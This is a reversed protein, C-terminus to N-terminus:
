KKSNSDEGPDKYSYVKIQEFLQGIEDNHPYHFRNIAKTTCGTEDIMSRLKIIPRLLQFGFTIATCIFVALIVSSMIILINLTKVLQYSHNLVEARLHSIGVQLMKMGNVAPQDDIKIAKDISQICSKVPNQNPNPNPAKGAIASTEDYLAIIAQSASFYQDFVIKIQKLSGREAGIPQEANQSFDHEALSNQNVLAV